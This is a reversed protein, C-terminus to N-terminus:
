LARRLWEVTGAVLAVCVVAVVVREVLSDAGLVLAALVAALLVGGVAVLVSVDVHRFPVSDSM